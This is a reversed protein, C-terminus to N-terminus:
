KEKTTEVNQADARKTAQIKLLVPLIAGQDTLFALGRNSLESVMRGVREDTYDREELHERDILFCRKQSALLPQLIQLNPLNGRGFPIELLFVADAGRALALNAEYSERSIPSFPKEQVFNLGLATAAEWDTDKVNLVGATVRCGKQVLRGMLTAGVGGGCILHIHLSDLTSSDEENPLLVVQPTGTLPHKIVLVETHYVKKIKEPTLVQEPTGAAFIKGEHLLVLRDSCQAALNLDHFIAVVTLNDRNNLKKLVGMIEMQAALDLHAMPEDLLMVQPQQALARALVVRQQEGGSLEAISRERLHWCNAAEMARRVILWDKEGERAFRSLHPHRGMMVIEQAPFSFGVSSEQPVVSVRQALSRKDIKAIDEGQLFVTGLNPKLSAALTKLLTSKGAANPGIIGLFSGAPLELNIQDLVRHAGYRCEVDAIKIVADM